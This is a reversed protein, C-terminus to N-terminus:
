RKRIEFVGEDEAFDLATNCLLGRIIAERIQWYDAAKLGVSEWYKAHIDTVNKWAVRESSSEIKEEVVDCPMGNLLTDNLAKAADQADSSASIAHLKGFDKSLSIIHEINEKECITKALLALRKESDDIKAQLWGHIDSLDIATRLDPLDSVFDDIGDLFGKSLANESLFRIFQEQFSIKEYLWFHIPALFASM